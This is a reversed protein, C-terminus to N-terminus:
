GSAVVVRPFVLAGETGARRLGPMTCDVVNGEEAPSSVLSAKEMSGASFRTGSAPVVLDCSAIMALAALATRERELLPAAAATRGRDKFAAILAPELGRAKLAAYTASGPDLPRGLATSLAEALLTGALDKCAEVFRRESTFQEEYSLTSEMAAHAEGELRDARAVAEALSRDLVAVRAGLAKIEARQEAAISSLRQNEAALRAAEARLTDSEGGRASALARVLAEYRAVVADLEARLAASFTEEHSM